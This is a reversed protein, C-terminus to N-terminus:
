HKFIMYTKVFCILLRPSIRFLVLKVKDNLRTNCKLIKFSFLEKYVKLWNNDKLYNRLRKDGHYYLDQIMLLVCFESEILDPYKKKIEIHRQFIADIMDISREYPRRKTISDPHRYYYYKVQNSYVIKKAELYLKHTVVIDNVIRPEFRINNFLERKYLKNWTTTARHIKELLMGRIMEKDPIITIEEDREVKEFDTTSVDIVDTTAIPTKYKKILKYLYEIADLEVFDDADVFYLYKGTAADIGVNRALSLGQNKTTIIKIRKDKYKKLKKLTDDTSGDNVIIIELNEYTQNIISPVCTDIFKSDNYVNLIVTILDKM